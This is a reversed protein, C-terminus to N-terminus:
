GTGHLTVAVMLDQLVWMDATMNGDTVDLGVNLSQYWMIACGM